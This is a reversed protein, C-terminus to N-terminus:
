LDGAKDRGSGDAVEREAASLRALADCLQERHKKEAIELRMDTVCAAEGASRAFDAHRANTNSLEDEVDRLRTVAGFVPLVHDLQTTGLAGGILTAEILSDELKASRQLERELRGELESARTEQKMSEAWAMELEAVARELRRSM